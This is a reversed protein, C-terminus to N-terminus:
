IAKNPRRHENQDAQRDSRCWHIDTDPRPQGQTDHQRHQDGGRDGAVPLGVPEFTDRQEGDIENERQGEQGHRAGRSFRLARRRAGTM